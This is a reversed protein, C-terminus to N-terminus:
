SGIPAQREAEQDVKKKGGSREVPPEEQQARLTTVARTGEGGRWEDGRELMKQSRPNRFSENLNAKLRNRKGTLLVNKKRM